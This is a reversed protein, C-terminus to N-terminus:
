LEEYNGVLSTSTEIQHRFEFVIKKRKFFSKNKKNNLEEQKLINKIKTLHLINNTKMLMTM